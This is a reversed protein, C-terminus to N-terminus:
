KGTMGLKQGMQGRGQSNGTGELQARQQHQTHQQLADHADGLGPAQARTRDNKHLQRSHGRPRSDPDQMRDKKHPQWSHGWPQSGPGQMGDNEHPQQLLYPQAETGRFVQRGTQM